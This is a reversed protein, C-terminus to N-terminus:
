SVVKNKGAKKARYLARDATDVLDFVSASRIEESSAVGLSITLRGSPQKEGCPFATNEVNIRIREAVQIAAKKSTSPLLVVFEEGGFRFASDQNDISSRITDALQILVQNGLLHGNTDNFHKFNDIDLLVVSMPAQKRHPWHQELVSQFARQNFLGTLGDKLAMDEIKSYLRTHQIAIAAQNALPIVSDIDNDTIPKKNVPNDVMLIGVKTGQSILPFVALESMNFQESFLLLASDNKDFEKIHLPTGSELTKLLFTPEDLSIELRQVRENLLLDATKEVEKNEILEKLKYKNKTLRGWTQFGEEATMPGTGMIGSLKSGNEDILLIIARNFGLGYGATVSTLITKLLKELNLTQQMSFSVEKFVNLQKSNETLKFLWSDNNAEFNNMFKVLLYVLAAVLFYNVLITISIGGSQAYVILWSFISSFVGGFIRFCIVTITIFLGLTWKINVYDFLVGEVGVLILSAGILLCKNFLPSGKFRLINTLMALVVTYLILQFYQMIM